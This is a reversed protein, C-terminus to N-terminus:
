TSRAAGGIAAIARGADEQDGLQRRFGAEPRRHDDRVRPDPEEPLERGAAGFLGHHGERAGAARYSEAGHNPLRGLFARAGGGPRSHMERLRAILLHDLKDLNTMAVLRSRRDAPIIAAFRRSPWPLRGPPCACQREPVHADQLSGILSAVQFFLYRHEAAALDARHDDVQQGVGAIVGDSHCVAGVVLEVTQLGVCRDLPHGEVNGIRLRERPRTRPLNATSLAGRGIVERRADSFGGLRVFRM